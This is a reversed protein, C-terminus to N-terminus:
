KVSGNRRSDPHERDREPDARPLLPAPAHVARHANFHDSGHQGPAPTTIATRAFPRLSEM